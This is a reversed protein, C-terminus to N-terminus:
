RATTVPVLRLAVSPEINRCGLVPRPDVYVGDVRVSFHLAPSGHGLGSSGLLSSETVQDGRRVAVRSLYSYSTKLGGGHDVTLTQNGVVSGAFSVTGSGAAWVATGAAAAFDVGWHGSYRGTPAFEKVVDGEVPRALGACRAVDGSPAMLLTVAVASLALLRIVSAKRLSDM